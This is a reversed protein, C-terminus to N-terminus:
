VCWVCWVCVCVVGVVCCGVWVLGGCLLCVVCGVYVALCVFGTDYLFCCVGSVFSFVTEPETNMFFFM